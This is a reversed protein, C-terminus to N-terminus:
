EQTKEESSPNEEQERPGLDLTPETDSAVDVAEAKDEQNSEAEGGPEVENQAVEAKEDELRQKEKEVATEWDPLQKCVNALTENIQRQYTLEMYLAETLQANREVQNKMRILTTEKM